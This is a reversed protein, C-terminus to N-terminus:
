LVREQSLESCVGLMSLNRTPFLSLSPFINFPCNWSISIWIRKRGFLSETQARIFLLFLTQHCRIINDLISRQIHITYIFISTPVIRTIGGRDYATKRWHGIFIAMWRQVCPFFIAFILSECTFPANPFLIRLWLRIKTANKLTVAPVKLILLYVSIILCVSPIQNIAVFLCCIKKLVWWLMYLFTSLRKFCANMTVSHCKGLFAMIKSNSALIELAQTLMDSHPPPPSPSHSPKTREDIKGAYM